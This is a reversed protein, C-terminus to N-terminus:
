EHKQALFSIAPPSAGSHFRYVFQWNVSQLSCARHRGRPKTNPSSSSFAEDLESHLCMGGCYSWKPQNQSVHWLFCIFNNRNWVSIDPTAGLARIACCYQNFDSLSRSRCTLDGEAYEADSLCVSHDNEVFTLFVSVVLCHQFMFCKRGVRKLPSSTVWGSPIVGFFFKKECSLNEKKGTERWQRWNLFVGVLLSLWWFFKKKGNRNIANTEFCTVRRPSVAM